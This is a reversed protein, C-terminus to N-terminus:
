GDAQLYGFRSMVEGHQSVIASCQAPSLAVRWDGSKGRRFFPRDGVSERFGQRQEQDRLVEFRSHELARAVRNSESPFGAFQCARTFTELPRALMDEYRLVQLPLGPEDVWSRVHESWTGLHQPLQAIWWRAQMSMCAAPDNMWAITGDLSGGRHHQLSVAVDLPNRIFYLVARTAQTSFYKGGGAPCRFADHVKLVQHGETALTMQVELRLEAIETETLESTDWGIRADLSSRAAFNEAELQNIDVPQSEDALLNALFIRFWTNGSKPYSALWVVGNM